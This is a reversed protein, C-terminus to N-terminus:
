PANRLMERLRRDFRRSCRVRTGSRLIAVQDGHFWPQLETIAEINVLSSRHVRAFMSPDLKEELRRLSERVLYVGGPVHVRVYNDYAEIWEVDSARVFFTRDGQKVAIRSLFATPPEPSAEPTTSNTARESLRRRVRDIAQHFREPVIPKVIYDLAQVEFARVAHEDYATVFIVLPQADSPLSSIVSLGDLEPMRIDLLVLDPRHLDTAAVVAAGDGCEAVIEIDSAERALRRLKGLALPEDDAIITRIARPIPSGASTRSM